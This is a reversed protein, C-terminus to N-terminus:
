LRPRNNNASKKLAESMAQRLLGLSAGKYVYANAGADIARHDEGGMTAASYFVIPTRRDFGRIQRCLEVGELDPLWNDLIILDFPRELLFRLGETATAAMQAHYGWEDLLLELMRRVDMDDEVLLVSPRSATM